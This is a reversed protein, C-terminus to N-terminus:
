LLFTIGHNGSGFCGVIPVKKSSMRAETTAIVYKKAQTVLSNTSGKNNTLFQYAQTLSIKNQYDNNSLQYEAVKIDKEVGKEL